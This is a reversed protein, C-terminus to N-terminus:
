IGLTRNDHIRWDPRGVRGQNRPELVIDIHNAGPNLDHALARFLTDMPTRFSLEATHQGGRIAAEYESQLSRLYRKITATYPM